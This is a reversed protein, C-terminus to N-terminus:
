ALCMESNINISLLEDELNLVKINNLLQNTNDIEETIKKIKNDLKIVDGYPAVLGRTLKTLSQAFNGDFNKLLRSIEYELSYLVPPIPRPNELFDNFIRILNLIEDMIHKAGTEASCYVSDHHPSGRKVWVHLREVNFGHLLKDLFSLQDWSQKRMDCIAVYIRDFRLDGHASERFLADRIKEIYSIYLDHSAKHDILLQEKEADLEILKRQLADIYKQATLQVIM